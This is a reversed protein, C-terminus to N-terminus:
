KQLSHLHYASKLQVIRVQVLQFDPEPYTFTDNNSVTNVYSMNKKNNIVAAYVREEEVAM